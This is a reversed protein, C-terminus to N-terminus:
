LRAPWDAARGHWCWVEVIPSGGGGEQIRNAGLRRLNDRAEELSDYVCVFLYAYEGGEDLVFFPRVVVHEPFDRPHAYVTLLVLGNMVKSSTPSGEAVARAQLRRRCCRGETEQAVRGADDAIRM